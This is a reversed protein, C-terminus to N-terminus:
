CDIQNLLNIIINCGEKIEKNTITLPPTIRIAKPEILLWFLLLGNKIAKLIVQNVTESDKLIIALM